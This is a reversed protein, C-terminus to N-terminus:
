LPPTHTFALCPVEDEISCNELWGLFGPNYRIVQWMENTISRVADEETTYADQNLAIPRNGMRLHEFYCAHGVEHFLIHRTLDHDLGKEVLIVRERTFTDGHAAFELQRGARSEGQSVFYVHYRHGVVLISSPDSVMHPM